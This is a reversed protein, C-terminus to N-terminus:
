SPNTLVEVTRQSTVNELRASAHRVLVEVQETWVPAGPHQPRREEGDAYVIAVVERGVILPIIMGVHGAAVRMFAPLLPDPVDGGSPVRTVQRLHVAATLMPSAAVTLDTPTEGPAFGSHKYARLTEGDVLLVAARAAEASAGLALAELIGRLSTADDLRRVADVIRTMLDHRAHAGGRAVARAVDVAAREVDVRNTRMDGQVVALLESSLAELHSDTAQRTRALFRDIAERIQHERSM